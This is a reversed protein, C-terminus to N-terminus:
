DKKKGAPMIYIPEEKIGLAKKVMTDQFAGIVVTGLGLAEAQLSINQGCHGVENHVYRIGREGYRGTTREYVATIVIDIPANQIYEQDWAATALEKRKDRGSLKALEHSEWLYHYIGSDLGKVNGAVLYIELPYTAGASPIARGGRESTKGQASWLLQSVQELTLAEDKYNRVSRRKQIAEEVSFTSKLRPAPLKVNVVKDIGNSIGTLIALIIIISCLLLRNQM